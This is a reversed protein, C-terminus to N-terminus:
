LPQDAETARTSDMHKRPAFGTPPGTRTGGLCANGRGDAKLVRSVGVEVLLTSFM